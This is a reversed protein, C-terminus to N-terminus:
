EGTKRLLEEKHMEEVRGLRQKWENEMGDMENRHMALLEERLEALASAKSHDYEARIKEEQNAYVQEISAKTAELEAKM